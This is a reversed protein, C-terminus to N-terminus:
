RNTPRDISECPTPAALAFGRVLQLQHLRDPSNEGGNKSYGRLINVRRLISETLSTALLAVGQM